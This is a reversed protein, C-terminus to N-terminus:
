SETRLGFVRRSKESVPLERNEGLPEGGPVIARQWLKSSPCFCDSVIGQLFFHGSKQSRHGRKSGNGGRLRRRRWGRRVHEGGAGVRFQELRDRIRACLELREVLLLARTSLRFANLEGEPVMVVVMMVIAPPMVVVVMMM